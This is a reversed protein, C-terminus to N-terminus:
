QEANSRSHRHRGGGPHDSDGSQRGRRGSQQRAALENLLAEESAYKTFGDPPLFLEKAPEELRVKSLTLRSRPSNDASDIQIALMNLDQARLLRFVSQQGNNASVTAQAHEVSHGELRESPGAVLQVVLNTFHNASSIPAYGQLAESLIYGRFEAVDWIFCFQGMRSHMRQSDDSDPEFLLTHQRQLLKGSLSPADNSPTEYTMVLHASFSERNTLLLAAPGAIFPPTADPPLFSEHRPAHACGANLLLFLLSTIWGWGPGNWVVRTSEKM